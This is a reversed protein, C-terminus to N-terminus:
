NSHEQLYAIVDNRDEAKKLGAFSMKNGPIYDKPNTLWENLAELTWTGGHSKLADSYNFGDVAAVERDVVGDLHPGVGNKGELSHCAKCKGFIKEGKAPDGDGLAIQTEEEAAAADGGTDDKALLDGPAASMMPKDSQAVEHDGGSSDEAEGVHYLGSSAWSTLLFLLFAGLLAGAAKTFTMTNFM